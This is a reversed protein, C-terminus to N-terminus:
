QNIIEAYLNELKINTTLYSYDKGMEKANSSMTERLSTNSLLHIAANAYEDVNESTLIGSKDHKIVNKIGMENLGIVPTGCMISKSSNPRTNRFPFFNSTLQTIHVLFM